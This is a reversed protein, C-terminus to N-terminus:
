KLSSWLDVLTKWITKYPVNNGLRYGIWQTMGSRSGTRLEHGGAQRNSLNAGATWVLCSAHHLSTTARKTQSPMAPIGAASSGWASIWIQRSRSRFSKGCVETDNPDPGELFSPSFLLTELLFCAHVEAQVGSATCTGRTVMLWGQEYSPSVFFFLFSSIAKVWLSCLSGSPASFFFHADGRHQREGCTDGHWTAAWSEVYHQMQGQM